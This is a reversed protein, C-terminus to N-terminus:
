HDKRRGRLNVEKIYQTKVWISPFNKLLNCTNYCIIQFIEVPLAGVVSPFLPLPKTPFYKEFGISM